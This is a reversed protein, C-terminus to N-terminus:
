SVNHRSTLCVTEIDGDHISSRHRPQPVLRYLRVTRRHAVRNQVGSPRQHGLVPQQRHRHRPNELFGADPTCREVLVERVNFSDQEGPVFTVDAAVEFMEGFDPVLGAVRTLPEFGHELGVCEDLVLAVGAFERREQMSTLVGVSRLLVERVDDSVQQGLGRIRAVDPIIDRGLLKSVIAEVGECCGAAQRGLGRDVPEDRNGQGPQTGRVSLPRPSRIPLAREIPSLQDALRAIKSMFDRIKSPISLESVSFPPALYAMLSLRFTSRPIRIPAITTRSNTEVRPPPPMIPPMPEIIPPEMIPPPRKPMSNASSNQAASTARSMANTRQIM